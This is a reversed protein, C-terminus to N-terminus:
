EDHTHNSMGGCLLEVIMKSILRMSEERSFGNQMLSAMLAGALEGIAGISTAFDEADFPNNKPNM